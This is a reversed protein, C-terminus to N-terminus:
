ALPVGTALATRAIPAPPEGTVHVFIEVPFGIDRFFGVYPEHRGLPPLDPQDVTILIDADSTVTARDAQLSGFLRM